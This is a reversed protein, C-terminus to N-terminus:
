KADLEAQMAARLSELRAVVAGDAENKKADAIVGDLTAIEGAQRERLKEVMTAFVEFFDQLEDGKRLRGQLVLKGEGVERLLRKMKFIPGAVKHTFIIGAIGVLFVLLALVGALSVLLLKRQREIAVHQDKMGAEQKQLLANQEELAKRSDALETARKEIAVLQIKNDKAVAELLTPQDAYKEAAFIEMSTHLAKAQKVSDDGAATAQKGIRVAENSIAVTKASQDYLENGLAVTKTTQVYLLAGLATSVALTLGVIYSTYKLQFRSDLLYNRASRKFKPAAPAAATPTL